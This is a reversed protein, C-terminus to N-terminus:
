MKWIPAKTSLRPPIYFKSTRGMTHIDMAEEWQRERPSEGFVMDERFEIVGFENGHLREFFEDHPFATMGIFLALKEPMDGGAIHNLTAANNHLRCVHMDVSSVETHWDQSTLLIVHSDKFTGGRIVRTERPERMDKQTVAKVVDNLGMKQVDGNTQPLIVGGGDDSQIQATIFVKNAHETGPYGVLMSRGPQLNHTVTPQISPFDGRLAREKWTPETRM